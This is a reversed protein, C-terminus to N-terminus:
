AEPTGDPAAREAGIFALLKDGQAQADRV